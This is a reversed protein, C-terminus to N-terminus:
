PLAHRGAAQEFRGRRATFAGTFAGKEHGFLESELLAPSLAASNVKVFPGGSLESNHHVANAVVEKGTGSEGVILVPEDTAAVRGIMKFVAMM